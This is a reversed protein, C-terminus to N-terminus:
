SFFLLLIIAFFYRYFVQLNQALCANNLEMLAKTFDTHNQDPTKVIKSVQKKTFYDLVEQSLSDMDGTILDPPSVDELDFNHSKLWSVWRSTGGDVTIRIKALVRM